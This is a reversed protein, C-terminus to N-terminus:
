NKFKFDNISLLSQAQFRAAIKDLKENFENLEEVGQAKYIAFFEEQIKSVEDESIFESLNHINTLVDAVMSAKYSFSSQAEVIENRIASMEQDLVIIADASKSLRKKIDFPIDRQYKYQLSHEITSWFNMALTRIQIEVQVEKHGKLTEVTYYVIIHYSRYGSKKMHNIYDKEEKVRMDKRNRIMEVVTYIDEVFQCIIRIGAIDDIEPEIRELPVNKKHSKDIISSISKVRGQVQEIPSYEDRNRYEDILHNLKVMIEDVCLKYPDLIERWLQTKM